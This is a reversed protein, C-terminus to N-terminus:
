NFQTHFASRTILRRARCFSIKNLIRGADKIVMTHPEIKQKWSQYKNINVEGYLTLARNAATSSARESDIHVTAVTHRARDRSLTIYELWINKQFYSM